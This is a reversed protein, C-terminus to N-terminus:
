CIHKREILQLANVLQNAIADKVGIKLVNNTNVCSVDYVTCLTLISCIM